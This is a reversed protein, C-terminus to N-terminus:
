NLQNSGKDFKISFLVTPNKKKKKSYRLTFLRHDTFAFFTIGNIYYYMKSLKIIALITVLKGIQDTFILNLLFNFIDMSLSSCKVSVLGHVYISASKLWVYLVLFTYVRM